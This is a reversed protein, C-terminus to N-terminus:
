SDGSNGPRVLRKSSRADLFQIRAEGLYGNLTDAAIQTPAIRDIQDLSRALEQSDVTRRRLVRPRPERPSGGPRRNRQRGRPLRRRSSNRCPGSRELRPTLV